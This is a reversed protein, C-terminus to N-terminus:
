GEVRTPDRCLVANAPRAVCGCSGVGGVGLSPLVSSGGRRREENHPTRVGQGGRGEPSPPRHVAERAPSSRRSALTCSGARLSRAGRGVPWRSGPLSRRGRLGSVLLWSHRRCLLRSRPPSSATVMEDSGAAVPCSGGAQTVLNLRTVSLVATSISIQALSVLLTRSSRCPRREARGRQESYRTRQSASAGPWASGPSSVQGSDWHCALSYCCPRSLRFERTTRAVSGQSIGAQRLGYGSSVVRYSFFVPCV